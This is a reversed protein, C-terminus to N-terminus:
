DNEKLNFYEMAKEKGIVDLIQDSLMHHKMEIILGEVQFPLLTVYALMGGGHPEGSIKDANFILEM